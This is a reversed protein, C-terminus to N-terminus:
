QPSSAASESAASPSTSPENPAHALSSAGPNLRTTDRLRPAGPNAFNWDALSANLAIKEIVMRDPPKGSGVGTPATLEAAAASGAEPAMLSAAFIAAVAVGSVPVGPVRGVRLLV